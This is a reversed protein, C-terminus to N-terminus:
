HSSGDLDMEMADLLAGRDLLPHPFLHRLQVLVEAAHGAAADDQLRRVATWLLGLDVLDLDLDAQRPALRDDHAELPCASVGVLFQREGNAVGKVRGQAPDVVDAALQGAGFQLAAPASRLRITPVEGSGAAGAAEIPPGASCPLPSSGPRSPWRSRSSATSRRRASHSATCTDSLGKASSTSAYRTNASCNRM